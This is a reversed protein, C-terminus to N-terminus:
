NLSGGFIINNVCERQGPFGNFLDLCTQEIEQDTMVLQDVSTAGLQEVVALLRAKNGFVYPDLSEEILRRIYDVTTDEYYKVSAVEM